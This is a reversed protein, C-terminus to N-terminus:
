KLVIFVGKRNLNQNGVWRMKHLLNLSAAPVHSKGAPATTPQDLGHPAVSAVPVYSDEPVVPANLEEEDLTEILYKKCGGEIWSVFLFM